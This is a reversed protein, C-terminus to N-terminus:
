KNIMNVMEKSSMKENFVISKEFWEDMINLPQSWESENEEPSISLTMGNKFQFGFNQETVWIPKDFHHLFSVQEVTTDILHKKIKDKNEKITFVIWISVKNKTLKIEISASKDRIKNHIAKSSYEFEINQSLTKEFAENIVAKEWSLSESVDLFCNSILDLLFRRQEYDSMGNYRDISVFKWVSKINGDLSQRENEINRVVHINFRQRSSSIRKLNKSFSWIVENQIDKSEEFDYITIHPAFKIM